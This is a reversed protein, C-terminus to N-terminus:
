FVLAKIAEKSVEFVRNQEFLMMMKYQWTWLTPEEVNVGDFFISHENNRRLSVLRGQTKSVNFNVWIHKRLNPNHTDSM